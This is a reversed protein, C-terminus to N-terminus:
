RMWGVDMVANDPHAVPSRAPEYRRRLQMGSRIMLDALMALWRAHLATPCGLLERRVQQLRAHRLLDQKRQEVVRADLMPDFM